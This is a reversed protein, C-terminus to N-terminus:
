KLGYKNANYCLRAIRVFEHIASWQYNTTRMGFSIEYRANEPLLFTRVKKRKSGSLTTELLNKPCFCAGINRVCMDLLTEMNDSYAKVNSILHVNDLFLRGIMGSVDDPMGIVFPCKALLDYEGEGIRRVIREKEDGFLKKLLEESIALVIEEDYFPEVEIGPIAQGIMGIALDIQGDLLREVLGENPGEDLYVTYDPYEKQFNEVLMPMITRGRTYGIGVKLLGKKNESIDQFEKLMNEYRASFGRAYRAFVEGAYTLELPVHRIFLLTGLEKELNAIHASLTQQTIHLGDAAKSFSREKEVALFYDMTMFNM